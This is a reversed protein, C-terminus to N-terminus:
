NRTVQLKCANCGLMGDVVDFVFFCGGCGFVGGGGCGVLCGWVLCGCGGVCWWVFFVGLVFCCVFFLGFLVGLVVVGVGLFWLGWGLFVLGLWVFVVGWWWGFLGFM